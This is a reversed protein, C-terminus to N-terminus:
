RSLVGCQVESVQKRVCQFLLFCTLVKREEPLATQSLGELLVVAFAYVSVRGFPLITLPSPFFDGKNIREYKSM